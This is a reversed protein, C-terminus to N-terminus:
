ENKKKQINNKKKKKKKKEFMGVLNLGERSAVM